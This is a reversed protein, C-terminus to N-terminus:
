GKLREKAAKKTLHENRKGTKPNIFGHDDRTCGCSFTATLKTLCKFCFKTSCNRCIMKHCEHQQSNQSKLNCKTVATSCTPCQKAGTEKMWEMLAATGDTDARGKAKLKERHEDCTLGRHFPQAGCKVCSVKKCTPCKLRPPADDELVCRFSCNPTPCAVLDAISSVAQELSRQLMRDIFETPLVKRLDHEPLALNCVPCPVEVAGVDLRAEAHRLMCGKCYWGHKCRLTVATQPPADDCCITCMEEVTNWRIGPANFGSLSSKRRKQASAPKEEPM